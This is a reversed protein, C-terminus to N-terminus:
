LLPAWDSIPMVNGSIYSIAFLYIPIILVCFVLKFDRKLLENRFGILLFPVIPLSYRVVDRHSVFLISVFFVLAFAAMTKDEMKWLRIIGLLGLLYVFIVEELWFTGVWSQTWNFIQFPPFLLHINDGSNFYALFNEFVKGYWVFVLLLSFPILLVPYAKWNIKRLWVSFSSTALYRGTPLLIAVLYGVFLLIGPSKTLQALIGFLGALWYKKELFYYVSAVIAGVFLPEPSGVSRVILWRAPFVAFILSLFLAEDEGAFRRALKYFFVVAMVSSAITVFLLSYPYGTFSAFIRVLVPFLPFHAAYYEVPLPFSFMTGILSNDYLTKAVVIYLPGDYNAIITSMGGAAVPVGWVKKFGAFFPLWVLMTPILSMVSLWLITKLNFHIKM